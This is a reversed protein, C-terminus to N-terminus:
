EWCTSVEKEVVDKEAFVEEGDLIGTDFIEKDNRGHTKDVLTVEADADIDAIKRGQKSADEQAGLGEDKSSVVQTSRGIKFLRKMGPPKSKRKGELKNVRKKLETIEVAQSTKINELDLVSLMLDNSHTPVSAMNETDDTVPEVQEQAQVIMTPFLPTDRGSFDKGQRKMNAFVKKTHSPTVYIKKHKYMGEVQKDLFLIIASAMTISFKNWATTKAGIRELEVFITANPLCETGNEDALQLDRRISTETIIVKKKDVLAQIQVEGNITQVKTTTQGYCNSAAICEAETTSNAVMTQKKCQWSILRYGIFQCVGITSKRDLNAGVYDNNTYAVLDFPSDKPYWFGLTPQCVEFMIDPRSSTLYMLLRIMSRYLHEDVDEGNADKLLPKHTEIPTSATKVDLGLFFTLEGISSMQFKKHMMKEFETCLSKKTSGFIIDNYLAKEVKYVRDPFDPDEFRPPQCVYVEEEIKGYLFDSKVDMQYVVFDKFSAYALFLRIAEIEWKFGNLNIHDDLLLIMRWPRGFQM